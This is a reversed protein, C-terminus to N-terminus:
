LSVGFVGLAVKFVDSLFFFADEFVSPYRQIDKPTKLYNLCKYTLNSLLRPYKTDKDGVTVVHCTMNSTIDMPDQVELMLYNLANVAEEM